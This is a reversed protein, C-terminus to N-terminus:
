NGRRKTKEGLRALERGTSLAVDVLRVTQKSYREEMAKKVAQPTYGQGISAAIGAFLRDFRHAEQSSTYTLGHCERCGFVLGGPPLYLKMTRRDCPGGQAVIPCRFYWRRGGSPLTVGGLSVRYHTEEGGKSYSLRVALGGDGEEVSFSLASSAKGGRSWTLVGGRGPGHSLAEKFTKVDLVLADEVTVKKLHCGWRGSGYGGM